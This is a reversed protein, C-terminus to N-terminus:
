ARHAARKEEQRKFHVWPPAADVPEKTLDKGVAARYAHVYGQVEPKWYRAWNKANREDNVNIWDGYRVSLLVQEGYIALEGFHTVTVDGWGQLKRMADVAGMWEEKYPVMHRGRLFEGMEPRALMWQEILM